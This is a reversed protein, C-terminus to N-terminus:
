ESASKKKNTLRENYKNHINHLRTHIKVASNQTKFNGAGNILKQNVTNLNYHVICQRNEYIITSNISIFGKSVQIKLFIKNSNFFNTFLKIQNEPDGLLRCMANM